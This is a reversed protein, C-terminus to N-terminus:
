YKLFLSPIKINNPNQRIKESSAKEWPYILDFFGYKNKIYIDIM